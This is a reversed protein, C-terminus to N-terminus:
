RCRLGRTGNKDGRDIFGDNGSEWIMKLVIFGWVLVVEHM